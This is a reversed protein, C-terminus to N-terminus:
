LVCSSKPGRRDYYPKGVLWENFFFSPQLVAAIHAGRARETVTRRIIHVDRTWERHAREPAIPM